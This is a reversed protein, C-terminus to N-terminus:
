KEVRKVIMPTLCYEGVMLGYKREIFRRVSRSGEIVNCEYNCRASYFCVSCHHHNKPNSLMVEIWLFTPLKNRNRTLWMRIYRLDGNRSVEGIKVFNQM